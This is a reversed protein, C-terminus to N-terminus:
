RAAFRPHWLISEVKCGVVKPQVSVAWDIGAFPPKLGAEASTMARYGQPLPNTNDQKM